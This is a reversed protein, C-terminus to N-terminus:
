TKMCVNGGAAEGLEYPLISAKAEEIIKEYDRVGRGRGGKGQSHQNAKPRNKFLHLM